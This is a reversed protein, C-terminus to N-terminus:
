NARKTLKLTQIGANSEVKLIYIGEPLADLNIESSAQPIAQRIISQGSINIIEVTGAEEEFYINLKDTAPNPYILLTSSQLSKNGTSFTSISYELTEDNFTFTYYGDIAISFQVNPKGGTAISAVGELGVANGWDEGSFNNTNAFKLQHEGQALFVDDLQWSSNGVLNMKGKSLQWNNFTGGVYMEDQNSYDEIRHILYDLTQPNFSFVYKGDSTISFKANLGGTSYQMKGSLGESVGWDDASWNTTNAFKFQYSGARLKIISSKLFGDESKRLPYDSLTWDNFTGALFYVGLKSVDIHDVNDEIIPVYININTTWDSYSIENDTVYGIRYTHNKNWNGESKTITIKLQNQGHKEAYFRLLEYDGNKYGFGNGADNYMVGEAVGDSLPNILLTISDTTYEEMSQIPRHLIPVIAGPRLAVLPQFGDDEPELKLMDWDGQPLKVNIAWRPIVLLDKGLLFAQEEKRLNLDTFDAFYTPRMIPMGTKAAEYFLSYFYPTLMYRRNLATRSVDEIEKGFVWPEQAREATHNRSFPYYAGLAMWHGLLDPTADVSYGGVDPGSFPQGSLGLTISMPISMRMHEWTGRNDGTWTACYRQAGLHNGRSLVFPRKNPVKDLVGEYTAQSMLSGYLNHYRLHSGETWGDGGRHINDIPMTWGETNFVGPENMDNWVGDIQYDDVFNGYLSAWWSRTEPRTFDPFHCLGPWVEGVYDNHNKDKVWHNGVTGQNYVFYNNDIKVGPDIIYGAKFNREQLYNNLGIPDSFDKSNFTFIRKGDMYDIDMWIVDCPIERRRFEDAIEKAKNATYSPNYRSQQYGLAWLPPLEITGTLTGLAKMMEAPNEKEIIIVRFAPGETTIKIPNSLDFYQKWSNDALIGFTSGDQRVGMIWPHSQYLCKGDESYYGWNDRNWIMIDTGNRRLSGTVLGTGYLDATTEFSIKVTIKGESNKGYVPTIKWDSPLDNKYILDQQIAYSPLTQSADFEAPYFVAMDDDFLFAQQANSLISIFLFLLSLSFKNTHKM